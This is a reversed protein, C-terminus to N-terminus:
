RFNGAPQGDIERVVRVNLDAAFGGIPPSVPRSPLLLLQPLAQRSTMLFAPLLTWGAPNSPM